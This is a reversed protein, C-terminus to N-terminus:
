SPMLIRGCHECYHITTPDSKCIEIEGASLRLHCGSCLSGSIYAVGSDQYREYIATYADMLNPDITMAIARRKDELQHIQEKIRRQETVIDKQLRSLEAKCVETEKLLIDKKEQLLDEDGLCLLEEDELSNQRELLSSLETAMVEQDRYSLSTNNQAESQISRIRMSIRSRSDELKLENDSLEDISRSVENLEKVIKDMKLKVEHFAALEPIAGLQHRLQSLLLDVEGLNRLSEFM